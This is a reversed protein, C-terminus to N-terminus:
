IARQRQRAEVKRSWDILGGTWWDVLGGHGIDLTRHRAQYLHHGQGIRSIRSGLLVDVSSCRIIIDIDLRGRDYM